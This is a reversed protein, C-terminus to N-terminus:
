NQFKKFKKDGYGFYDSVLPYDSMIGTDADM